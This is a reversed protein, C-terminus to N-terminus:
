YGADALMKAVAKVRMTTAGMNCAMEKGKTLNNIKQDKLWTGVLLAMKTKCVTAGGGGARTLVLTSYKNDGEPPTHNTFTFKENCIRIGCEQPKRNGDCAKM